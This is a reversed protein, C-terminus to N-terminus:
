LKVLDPSKGRSFHTPSEYGVEFGAVSVSLQGRALLASVGHMVEAVGQMVSDKGVGSPGVVAILRGETM